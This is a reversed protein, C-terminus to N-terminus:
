KGRLLRGNRSRPDIVVRDLNNIEDGMKNMIADALQDQDFGTVDGQFVITLSDGSSREAPPLPSPPAAEPSGGFGGGGGSPSGGGGGMFGQALGTAAILGVQLKGWAMISAAAPPGAIPGLEAVARTAAVLTNTWAMAASLATQVGLVVHAVTENERAFLQLLGVGQQFTAMRASAIMESAKREREADRIRIKDLGEYYDEQAELMLDNAEQETIVGEMKSERILDREDILKNALLEKETAYKERLQDIETGLEAFRKQKEQDLEDIIEKVDRAALAAEAAKLQTDSAGQVRLRYLEAENATMGYTDAELQLAEVRKQIAKTAKDDGGGRNNKKGKKELDQIIESAVRNVKNNDILESRGSIRDLLDAFQQGKAQAADAEIAFRKLSTISDESLGQEKGFDEILPLLNKGEDYATRLVSRFEAFDRMADQLGPGAGYYGQSPSPKAGSADKAADLLDNLAAKAAKAATEQQKLWDLRLGERQVENAQKYKSIFTDLSPGSLDLEERFKKVARAADDNNDGFVAVAAAATGIATVILGVPNARAVANFAAMAITAGKVAATYAAYSGVAGAIVQLSKALTELKKSQEDSLDNAEAFQPLMGNYVSIVGTATDILDQLKGGMGGDGLQLVAEATASGFARISGTLGSGLIGAMEAAAGESDGLKDTLEQVRGSAGLLIQAAAGAESGFIQFADATSINAEALRDIVPQLGRTSIDVDSLKIQYRDLAAEAQPTINSLQRIFGVFGTGARSAQIGADSLAGIAAATQEVSVGAATAIPAAFSLAQGLQQVNTNASAATAALVDNVRGLEGVELRFGSLANSALDAASGLDMGSAAALQLIGPTAGLVENVEFGAQALFRQADAAQQASFMSTAGLERAQKELVAMQEATAGSVAQVGRMAQDFSAIDGVIKRLAASGAVAAIAAGVAKFGGAMQGTARTTQEETREAQQGIRDLSAAGKDVDRSDVALVLRATETM